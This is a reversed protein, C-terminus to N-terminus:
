SSHCKPNWLDGTAEHKPQKTGQSTVIKSLQLVKYFCPQQPHLGQLPGLGREGHERSRPDEHHSSKQDFVGIARDAM